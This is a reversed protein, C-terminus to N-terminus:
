DSSPDYSCLTFTLTRNNCLICLAWPLRPHIFSNMVVSTIRKRTSMPNFASWRSMRRFLTVIFSSREIGSYTSQASIWWHMYTLCSHYILPTCNSEIKPFARRERKFFFFCRISLTREKMWEQIPTEGSALQENEGKDGKPHAIDM